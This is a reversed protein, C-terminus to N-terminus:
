FMYDLVDSLDAYPYLSKLECYACSFCSNCILGIFGFFIGVIALILGAIALGKGGKHGMGMIGFVLGVISGFFAIIGFFPLVWSLCFGLFGVCGLILGILAKVNFGGGQPAPRQPQQYMPQRPQLNYNYNNNM